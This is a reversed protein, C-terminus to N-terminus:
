DELLEDLWEKDQDEADSEYDSLVADLPAVKVVNMNTKAKIENDKNEADMEALHRRKVREVKQRSTMFYEEVPEYDEVLRQKLVEWQVDPGCTSTDALYSYHYKVKEPIPLTDTEGDRCGAHGCATGCLNM